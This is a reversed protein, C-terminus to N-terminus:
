KFMNKYASKEKERYELLYKKAREFEDLIMQSDPVYQYALKLDLLAAEYNRLEIHAQGSAL